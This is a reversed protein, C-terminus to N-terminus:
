KALCQQPDEAIILALVYNQLSIGVEFLGSCFRFVNEVRNSSYTQPLLFQKTEFDSLICHM